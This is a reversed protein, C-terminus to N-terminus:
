ANDLAVALTGREVSQIMDELMVIMEDKRVMGTEISKQIMHGVVQEVMDRNCSCDLGEMM